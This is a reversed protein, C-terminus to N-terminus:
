TQWGCAPHIKFISFKITSHQIDTISRRKHACSSCATKCICGLDTRAALCTWQKSGMVIWGTSELITQIHVWSIRVIPLDFQSYLRLTWFVWTTHWTCHNRARTGWNPGPQSVSPPPHKLSAIRGRSLLNAESVQSMEPWEAKEQDHQLGWMRMKSSCLKGHEPWNESSNSGAIWERIHMVHQLALAEKTHACSQWLTISKRLLFSVDTGIKINRYIKSGNKM